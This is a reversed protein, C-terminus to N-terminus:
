FHLQKRSPEVGIKVGIKTVTPDHACAIILETISARPRCEVGRDRADVQSATEILGMGVCTERAGHM